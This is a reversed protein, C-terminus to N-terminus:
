CSRRGCWCDRDRLRHAQRQPRIRLDCGANRIQSQSYFRQRCRRRRKERWHNRAALLLRVGRAALLRRVGRAALLLRVGRAALLPRVGRAALLPRVGRAALLRRVGRAALLLRVGRAALLRRVIAGDTKAEALLHDIGAKIMEGLNVETEIFITEAAIKSDGKHTDTKGSLQVRCFRNDDGLPYYSWVDFPNTCAHFGSACAKVTGEHAYSKGIEFQYGNCSLEKSFGKWAVIANKAKAKTPM